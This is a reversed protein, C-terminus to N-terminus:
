PVFRSGDEEVGVEAAVEECIEGMRKKFKPLSEGALKDMELELPMLRLNYLLTPLFQYPFSIVITGPKIRGMAFSPVFITQYFVEPCIDGSDINFFTVGISRIVARKTIGLTEIDLSIDTFKAVM